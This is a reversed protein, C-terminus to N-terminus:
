VEALATKSWWFNSEKVFQTESVNMTLKGVNKGGLREDNGAGLVMKNPTKVGEVYRPWPAMSYVPNKPSRSGVNPDGNAIFNTWYANVASVLTRQTPSIKVIGPSYEVFGGVCSHGTGQIISANQGCQYLYVPPDNPSKSAFHATQRVPAIYAFQGYAAMLRNHQAGPGPQKQVYPSDPNTVPDPYIRSIAALDAQNLQPNLTSFFGTFEANTHVATPVFPAGEDTCFGTLIAAKNWNGSTWKQIPPMEIVGGPGDIVPQFAWRDSDSYALWVKRSAQKIKMFSSRRLTSMVEDDTLRAPDIGMATYFERSQQEILTSSPPQCFRATPAGSEM